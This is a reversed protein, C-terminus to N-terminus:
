AAVPYWHMNLTDLEERHSATSGSLVAIGSNTNRSANSAASPLTAVSHLTPTFAPPTSQTGQQSLAKPRAKLSVTYLLLFGSLWLQLPPNVFLFAIFIFDQLVWTYSKCISFAGMLRVSIGTSTGFQGYRGVLGSM